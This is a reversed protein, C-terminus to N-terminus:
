GGSPHFPFQLAAAAYDPTGKMYLAPLFRGLKRFADPDVARIKMLDMTQTVCGVLHDWAWPGSGNGFVPSVCVLCVNPAECSPRNYQYVISAAEERNPIMEDWADLLLGAVGKTFDITGPTFAALSLTGQHEDKMARDWDEKWPLAVWRGNERYPLQGISMQLFRGNYVRSLMSLTEYNRLRPHTAAAQRFWIGPTKESEGDLLEAAHAFATDLEGANSLSFRPLVVTPKGLIIKYCELVASVASNIRDNKLDPDPDVANLACERRLVAGDPCTITFVYQGADPVSTDNPVDIESEWTDPPSHAVAVDAAGPGSVRIVVNQNEGGPFIGRASFRITGAAEDLAVRVTQMGNMAADAESVKEGCAKLRKGIEKLVSAAQAELRAEAGPAAGPIGFPIAQELAARLHDSRGVAPPHLLSDRIAELGDCVGPNETTGFVGGRLGLFETESLSRFAGSEGGNGAPGQETEEPLFLDQPKLVASHTISKLLARAVPLAEEFSKQGATFDGDRAYIFQVAGEGDIGYQKGIYYSMIQEIEASESTLPHASLLLFDMASFNFVKHFAAEDDRKFGLPTITLRVSASGDCYEARCIINEPDGLIYAAWANVHPSVRSRVSEPWLDKADRWTQPFDAISRPFLIFSSHKVNVGGRPTKAILFDDPPSGDASTANLVAGASEYNGLVSQHVSEALVLDSVADFTGELDDLEQLVAEKEDGSMGRLGEDSGFPVAGEGGAKFARYAKLLELGDVVNRAAANEMPEGPEVGTEKGANLPYLKRFPLIYQDLHLAASGRRHDEHLAREFRYGLLVSLPQGNRIGELYWLATKVRESSLNIRLAEANEANAHTLFANRLVAATVGHANGPALIYGGSEGAAAPKLDEVFGYGGIYPKAYCQNKILFELRRLAFAGLWADIRHTSLDLVESVLRELEASPLRGLWLVDDLLTGDDSIKTLNNQEAYRLLAERLLTFLVTDPPDERGSNDQDYRNARIDDVVDVDALTQLYNNVLPLEESLPPIQVLPKDLARGEGWITTDVLPPIVSTATIEQFLTVAEQKGKEFEKWYDEFSYGPDPGADGESGGGRRFINRVFSYVRELFFLGPWSFKLLDRVYNDSVVTRVGINRAGDQVGLIKVLEADPDDTGGARPVAEADQALWLWHASLNRVISLLREYFDKKQEDDGFEWKDYSSVPLIGYPMDDIRVAPFPGRARVFGLYHNKLEDLDINQFAKGLFDPSLYAGWTVPWLVRAMREANEDGTEAAGEVHNLIERYGFGLARALRWGDTLRHRSVNWAPFQDRLFERTYSSPYDSERSDYASDTGEISNTPTGQRLLEVGDAYGAHTFLDALADPADADPTKVGLVIVKSFGDDIQDSSLGDLPVKVAMGAAVAEDFDAMWLSDGDFFGRNGSDADEPASGSEDTLDASSEEAYGLLPDPCVPLPDPVLRGPMERYLVESVTGGGNRLRYLRFVFYDPMLRSRPPRSWSEPRLPIDDRNFFDVGQRVLYASRHPGFKDVLDIWAPMVFKERIRKRERWYAKGAEIINADDFGEDLIGNIDEVSLFYYEGIQRIKGADQESVADLLSEYAAHNLASARGRAAFYLRAKEVEEQTFEPEHADVAIDDPYVRIWLEPHDSGLFKYKTEIRVPFMFFPTSQSFNRISLLPDLQLEAMKTKLLNEASNIGDLVGTLGLRVADYENILGTLDAPNGSRKRNRILDQKKLIETKRGVIGAKGIGIDNQLRKIERLKGNFRNLDGDSM